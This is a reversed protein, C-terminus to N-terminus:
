LHVAMKQHVYARTGRPEIQYTMTVVYNKRRMASVFCRLALQDIDQEERSATAPYVSHQAITRSSNNILDGNDTMSKSYGTLVRDFRSLMAKKKEAIKEMEEVLYEDKCIRTLRAVEPAFLQHLHGEISFNADLYDDSQSLPCEPIHALLQIASDTMPKKQTGSAIGIKKSVLM